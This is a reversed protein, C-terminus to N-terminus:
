NSFWVSVPQNYDYVERELVICVSGAERMFMLKDEDAASDVRASELLPFSAEHAIFM